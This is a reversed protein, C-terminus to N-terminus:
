SLQEYVFIRLGWPVSAVNYLSPWFKEVISHSLSLTMCFVFVEIVALSDHTCKTKECVLEANQSKCIFFFPM